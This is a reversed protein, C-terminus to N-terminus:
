ARGLVRDVEFRIVVRKPNEGAPRYRREFRRVGEAVDEPHRQVVADGELALWRRGAVQCVVARRRNEVNVVKQTRDSTIMTVAGDLYTFAIAVVHPTGNSRLTTLTGLHRDTLFVLEAETLDAATRSM